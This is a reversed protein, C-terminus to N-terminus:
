GCTICSRDVPELHYILLIFLYRFIPFSLSLTPGVHIAIVVVVVVVVADGGDCLMM